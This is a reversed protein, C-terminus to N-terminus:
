TGKLSIDFNIVVHFLFNFKVNREVKYFGTVFTYEAFKEQSPHIAFFTRRLKNVKLDEIAFIFEVFIEKVTLKQWQYPLM